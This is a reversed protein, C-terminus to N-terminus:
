AVLKAMGDLVGVDDAAEATKRMAIRREPPRARGRLVGIKAVAALLEALDHRRGVGV